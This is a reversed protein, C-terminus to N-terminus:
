CRVFCGASYDAQAFPALKSVPRKLPISVEKNWQSQQRSTITFSGQSSFVAFGVVNERAILAAEKVQVQNEDDSRTVAMNSGNDKASNMASTLDANSKSTPLTRMTATTTLDFQDAANSHRTNLLMTATMQDTKTTATTADVTKVISATAVNSFYSNTTSGPSIDNMWILTTPAPETATVANIAIVPPSESRIVPVTNAANQIAVNTAQVMCPVMFLVVAFLFILILLSKKVEKSREEFLESHKCVDVKRM